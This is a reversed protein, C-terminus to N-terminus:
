WFYDITGYLILLMNESKSVDLVCSLLALCTLSNQNLVKKLSDAAHFIINKVFCLWLGRVLVGYCKLPALKRVFKCQNQNSDSLQCITFLTNPYGQPKARPCDGVKYMPMFWGQKLTPIIAAHLAIVKMVNFPFM